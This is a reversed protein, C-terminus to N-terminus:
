GRVCLYQNAGCARFDPVKIRGVQAPHYGGPCSFGGTLPNVFEVQGCDDKQYSGGFRPIVNFAENRVSALDNRLVAMENRVAAIESTFSTKLTNLETSHRDEAKKLEGEYYTKYDSIQTYMKDQAGRFEDRAKQLMDIARVYCEAPTGCDEKCLINTFITLIILITCFTKM